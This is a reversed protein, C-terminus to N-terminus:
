KYDDLPKKKGLWMPIKFLIWQSTIIDNETQMEKWMLLVQLSMKAEYPMEFAKDNPKDSLSIM